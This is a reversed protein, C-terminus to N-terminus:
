RVYVDIHNDGFFGRDYVKGQYGFPTDFITGIPANNALVIYGDGDSVYGDKNVHRGPIKLNHGPLKSQSYYTFKYQNFYVVGRKLFDKLAVVGTENKIVTTTQSTTTVTTTEIREPRNVVSQSTEDQQVISRVATTTTEEHTLQETSALTTEPVISSALTEAAVITVDQETKDTSDISDVEIIPSTLEIHSDRVENQKYTAFAVLTTISFMLLVVTLIEAFNFLKKM